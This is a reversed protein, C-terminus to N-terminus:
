IKKRKYVEMDEEDALDEQGALAEVHHTLEHKITELIEKQWDHESNGKLFYAFSGYYLVIQNGLSNQIYEGLIYYDEEVDDEKYIPNVYIGMNLDKLLIPPIKNEILYDVYKTFEKIKM